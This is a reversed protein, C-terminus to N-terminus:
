CRLEIKESPFRKQLYKVRQFQLVSKLIGSSFKGNTKTSRHCNKEDGMFIFDIGVKKMICKIQKGICVTVCVLYSKHRNEVLM